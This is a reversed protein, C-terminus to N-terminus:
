PPAHTDMRLRELTEVKIIRGSKATSSDITNILFFIGLFYGRGRCFSRFSYWIGFMYIILLYSYCTGRGKRKGSILSTRISRKLVSCM